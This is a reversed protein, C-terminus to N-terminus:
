LSRRVQRGSRRAWRHGEGVGQERQELKGTTGQPAVLRSEELAKARATGEKQFIRRGSIYLAGTDGTGRLTGPM